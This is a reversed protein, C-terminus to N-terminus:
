AAPNRKSSCNPPGASPPKRARANGGRCCNRIARARALSRNQSLLRLARAFATGFTKRSLSNSKKRPAPFRDRRRSDKPPRNRSFVGPAPRSLCHWKQGRHASSRDSRSVSRGGGRRARHCRASARREVWSFPPPARSLLALFLQRELPPLELPHLNQSISLATPSTSPSKWLRTDLQPTTRARVAPKRWGPQFHPHSFRAPSAM